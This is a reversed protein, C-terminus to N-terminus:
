NLNECMQCYWEDDESEIKVCGREDRGVNLAFMLKSPLDANGNRFRRFTKPNTNLAGNLFICYTDTQSETLARMAWTVHDSSIWRNVCVMALEMATM